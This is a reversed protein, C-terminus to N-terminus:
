RVVLSITSLSINGLSVTSSVGGNSNYSVLYRGYGGSYPVYKIQYACGEVPTDMINAETSTQAAGWISASDLGITVITALRGSVYGRTAALDVVIGTGIAITTAVIQGAQWKAVNAADWVFKSSYQTGKMASTTTEEDEYMFLNHYSGTTYYASVTYLDSYYKVNATIKKSVELRSTNEFIGSITDISGTRPNPILKVSYHVEAGAPANIYFTLKGNSPNSVNTILSPSDVHTPSLDNPQVGDDAAYTVLIIFPSVSIIMIVTLFSSLVKKLSKM